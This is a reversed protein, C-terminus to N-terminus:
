ARSRLSSANVLGGASSCAAQKEIYDEAFAAGEFLDRTHLTAYNERLVDFVGHQAFVDFAEVASLGHVHAYRDLAAVLILNQGREVKTV